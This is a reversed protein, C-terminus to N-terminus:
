TPRMPSMRIVARLTLLCRNGSPTDGLTEARKM